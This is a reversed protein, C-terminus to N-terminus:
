VRRGAAALYALPLALASLGVAVARNAELWAVTAGPGPLSVTAVLRLADPGAAIALAALLAAAVGAIRSTGGLVATVCTGVV